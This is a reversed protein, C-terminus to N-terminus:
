KSVKMNKSGGPYLVSVVYAGHDLHSLNISHSPNMHRSLLAGQMSYIRVESVEDSIFIDDGRQQMLSQQSITVTQVESIDHRGDIDKQLLRYYYMGSALDRDIFRYAAGDENKCDSKGITQFDNGDESRQIEFSHCNIEATTEWTIETIRGTANVDIYRYEVPLPGMVQLSTSSTCGLGDTVTVYYMGDHNAPEYPSRLVDESIESYSPGDWQYTYSSACSNGSVTLDITLDTAQDLESQLTPKTVFLPFYGNYVSGNFAITLFNSLDSNVESSTPDGYSTDFFRVVEDICGASGDYDIEFTFLRARDGQNLVPLLGNTLNPGFSYYSKSNYNLLSYQWQLTATSSVPNETAVSTISADQPMVITIQAQSMGRHFNTTASGQDAVLYVHYACQNIDYEIDLIAQTIQAYSLNFCFSFILCHFISKFTLSM